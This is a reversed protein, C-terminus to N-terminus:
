AYVFDFINIPSVKGIMLPENPNEAKMAAIANVYNATEVSDVNLYLSSFDAGVKYNTYGTPNKELIITVGGTKGFVNRFNTKVPNIGATYATELATKVNVVIDTWETDTFTGEITIDYAKDFTVTEPTSQSKQQENWKAHLAIDATVTDGEFNWKNSFASEKYWGDLSYNTKTISPETVKSGKEVTQAQPEPTGGNAIFTVNFTETTEDGGGCGAMAFTIIAVLAIIWFHKIGNKM